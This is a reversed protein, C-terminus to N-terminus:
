RGQDNSCSQGNGRCDQRPARQLPGAGRYYNNDSRQYQGQGPRQYQYPAGQYQPTRYNNNNNNYNPRQYPPQQVPAYNPRQYYPQQQQPGRYNNNDYPRQQVPTYNPRQYPPQQVPAYNPRQYYPQQQQPGRYNNNDYPRQQVPTYNPRQYPPQQVPPDHPRQYPQQPVPTYNSHYPPQPPAPTDNPHYPQQQPVPTYPPRQYQVPRPDTGAPRQYPAPANTRHFIVTGRTDGYRVPADHYSGVYAHYEPRYYYSRYPGYYPYREYRGDRDRVVLYDFGSVVTVGLVFGTIPAAAYVVPCSVPYWGSYVHYEPRYYYRYYEGYYPYRWYHGDHDRVLLYILGALAITGLVVGIIPLPSVEAYVPYAPVPAVSAPVYADIRTAYFGGAGPALWVTATGGTYAALDCLSVVQSNISIATYPGAAITDIGTSTALSVFGEQCDVAQITGQVQLTSQANGVGALGLLPVLVGLALAIWKRM